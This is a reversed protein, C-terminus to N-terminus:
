MDKWAPLGADALRWRAELERWLARANATDTGAQALKWRITDRQAQQCHVLPAM